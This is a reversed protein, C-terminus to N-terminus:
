LELDIRSLLTAMFTFDHTTCPTRYPQVVLDGFMHAILSYMLM